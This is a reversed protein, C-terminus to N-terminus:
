ANDLAEKLQYINLREFVGAAGWPMIVSAPFADKTMDSEYIGTMMFSNGSYVHVLQWDATLRIYYRSRVGLFNEDTKGICYIRDGHYTGTESDAEATALFAATETKRTVFLDTLVAEYDDGGLAEAMNDNKADEFLSKDNFLVDYTDRLGMVASEFKTYGQTVLEVFGEDWDFLSALIATGILLVCLVIIVTKM